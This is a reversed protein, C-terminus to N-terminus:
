ENNPDHKKAEHHHEEENKEDSTSYEIDLQVTKIRREVVNKITFHLSLIREEMLGDDDSDIYITSLLTVKDGVIPIREFMGYLYGGITPYNTDPKAGLELTDYLEEVALDASLEYSNEGLKIIEESIDEIEDHEDYIEGVIEELADEMTVIGSTGGYEDSVIALHKKAKQMRRILDDVKMTEAVFLPSTMLANIDTKKNSIYSAFFDKESLVGIIHDKDEKFVPMRSYKYELFINKVDEITSNIDIAVFDVRPIMIDNVTREGIDIISQMLDADNSDIVGEEEMTDIISELDEETVTPQEETSNKRMFLKKIMIFIWVIPWLIKILFYLLGSIRLCLKESSEKAFCKPIIEGFILIIITMILTNLINSVTPNVFIIGFAVTALTTAAINVFNNGVLITSLTRDFHEAIWLAKRSGRKKEQVYTKLRMINVTSFATESASFFSSGLILLILGLGICTLVIWQNKNIENFISLVQNVETLISNSLSCELPSM